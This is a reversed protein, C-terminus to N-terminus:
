FGFGFNLGYVLATNGDIFDLNVTPGISHNKIHFDYGAGARFGFESHLKTGDPILDLVTLAVLPAALIKLNSVPHWVISVGLLIETHDEFIYEALLGAGLKESFRYEYDIGLTFATHSHELNSTAGAFLALHNKHNHNNSNHHSDEHHEQAFSYSNNLIIFVLICITIQIIKKILM